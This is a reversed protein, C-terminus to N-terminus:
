RLGRSARSAMAGTAPPSVWRPDCVTVGIGQEGLRLAARVRAPNIM